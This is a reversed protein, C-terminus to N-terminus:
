EKAFRKHIGEQWEKAQQLEHRAGMQEFIAVARDIYDRAADDEQQYFLAAINNYTRGLGAKDGVENRIQESKHYYALAQDWDGKHDYIGGINNYTTGLGAKDGVAKYRKESELFWDIAEPWLCLRDFLRGKVLAIDAQEAPSFPRNVEDVMDALAQLRDLRWGNVSRHCANKWAAFVAEIEANLGCYFQEDSDQEKFYDHLRTQTQQFATVDMHREHARVLRQLEAHYRYHKGPRTIFSYKIFREFQDQSLGPCLTQQLMTLNFFRALGAQRILSKYPEAVREMIRRLLLEPVMKNQYAERFEATHLDAARLQGGSERWLDGAISMSLAYGDTLQWVALILDPETLDVKQLYDEVDALFLHPVELFQCRAKLEDYVLQNRGSLIVRLGPYVQSLDLLFPLLWSSFDPTEEAPVTEPWLNETADLALLLPPLELEAMVDLFADTIRRRTDIIATSMDVQMASSGMQIQSGERAEIKQEISVTQPRLSDLWQDRRDEFRRLKEKDEVHKKLTRILHNLFSAYDETRGGPEFSIMLHLLGDCHHDLLHQVLFSKGIGSIGYINFFTQKSDPRILRKFTEIADDRGVFPHDTM